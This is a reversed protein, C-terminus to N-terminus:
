KTTIELNGKVQDYEEFRISIESTTYKTEEPLSEDSDEDGNNNALVGGSTPIKFEEENTDEAGENLNPDEEMKEKL